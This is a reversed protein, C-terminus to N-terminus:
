PPCKRIALILGEEPTEGLVQVVHCGMSLTTALATALQSMPLTVTQELAGALQQVVGGETALVADAAAVVPIQLARWSVGEPGRDVVIEDLGSATLGRRALMAVKAPGLAELDQSKAVVRLVTRPTPAALRGPQWTWGAGGKRVIVLGEPDIHGSAGSGLSIVPRKGAAATLVFRFRLTPIALRLSVSGDHGAQLSEIRADPWLDLRALIIAAALLALPQATGLECPARRTGVEVHCGASDWVWAVDRSDTELVLRDAQVRVREGRRGTPEVRTLDVIAGTTLGALPVALQARLRALVRPGDDLGFVDDRGSRTAAEPLMAATLPAPLATPSAPEPLAVGPSISKVSPAKPPPPPARRCAVLTLAALALVQLLRRKAVCSWPVM